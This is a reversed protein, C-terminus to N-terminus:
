HLERKPLLNGIGHDELPQYTQETWDTLQIESYDRIVEATLIKKESLTEVEIILMEVADPHTSLSEYEETAEAEELSDAHVAWVEGGFVVALADMTIALQRVFDMAAEKTAENTQDLSVMVIKPEALVEGEQTCSALLAWLPAAQAGSRVATELYGKILIVAKEVKDM